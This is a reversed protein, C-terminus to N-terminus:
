AAKQRQETEATNLSINTVVLYEIFRYFYKKDLASYSEAPLKDLLNSVQHIEIVQSTDVVVEAVKSHLSDDRISIKPVTEPEIFSMGDVIKYNSLFDLRAILANELRANFQKQVLWEFVSEPLSSKLLSSEFDEKHSLFDKVTRLRRDEDKPWKTDNTKKRMQRFAKYVRNTLADYAKQDFDFVPPILKEAERKKTFTTNEDVMEFSIPSTIDVSVKEGVQYSNYVFDFNFNMLFSLGLTFLFLFCIKRISFRQDLYYTWRGFFTQELGMSNVWEVFRGSDISYRTRRVPTDGAGIKKPPQIKESGKSSKNQPKDSNM